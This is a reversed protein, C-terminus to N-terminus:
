RGIGWPNVIWTGVTTRGIPDDLRDLIGVRDVSTIDGEAHLTVLALGIGGEDTAALEVPQDDRIVYIHYRSNAPDYPM